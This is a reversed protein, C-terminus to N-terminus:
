PLRHFWFLSMGASVVLFVLALAVFLATIETKEDKVVLSGGLNEYIKKLDTDSGARFYDAKTKDAIAQLTAEDLVVRARRGEARMVVGDPSGLGVTFVRLKRQAALPVVDLPPPGVNSQGDTLLVIISDDLPEGPTAPLPPVQTSPWGPVEDTSGSDARGPAQALPPEGRYELITNIAVILGSGIATGRQLTLRDVAALLQDKDNTPNQLVFATAAFAVLAIVADAPQKAIFAKASAQAAQIRTPAVDAARMSGSTDLVLVILGGHSVM